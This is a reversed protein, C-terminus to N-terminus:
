RFPEGVGDAIFRGSSQVRVGYHVLLTAATSHTTTPAQANATM